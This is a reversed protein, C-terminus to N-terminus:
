SQKKILNKYEKQYNTIDQKVFKLLDEFFLNTKQYTLQYIEFYDFVKPKALYQYKSLEKFKVKYNITRSQDSIDLELLDCLPLYFKELSMEIHKIRQENKLKEESQIISIQSITLSACALIIAFGSLFIASKESSPAMRYALYSAFALLIIMNKGNKVAYSYM